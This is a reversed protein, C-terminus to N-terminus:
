ASTKNIRWYLAEDTKQVMKMGVKELVRQSAINLPDTDALVAACQNHKFAWAILAQVTETMYGNGRAAPSIGYGIEVEGRENPIGKFGAMGAGFPNGAPVILWYTLWAHQAQDLEIMKSIKIKIARFVTENANDSDITFGLENELAHLDILFLQLQQLTLPVLKLRQTQIIPTMPYKRSFFHKLEAVLMGAIILAGGIIMRLTITEGIWWGALAAFVPELASILAVRTPSIMRTIWTQISTGLGIIVIGTSIVAIWLTSSTVPVVLPEFLLWGVGNLLTVVFIHLAAYININLQPSFHALSIIYLAWLVSGLVVWLDGPVFSIDKVSGQVSLLTLGGFSLIVGVMSARGPVRHLLVASLVAVFVVNTGSLFGAKTVTTLKQGYTYSAYVLFLIFGTLISPWIYTRNIRPWNRGVLLVLTITALFMRLTNYAFPGIIQLANKTLVFSIGWFAVVVVFALEILGTQHKHWDSTPSTPPNSPKM